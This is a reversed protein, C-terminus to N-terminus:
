QASKYTGNSSARLEEMRRGWGSVSYPSSTPSPTPPKRCIASWIPYVTPLNTFCEEYPACHTVRMNQTLAPHGGSYCFIGNAALGGLGGNICWCTINQNNPCATNGQSCSTGRRREGRRRSMWNPLGDDAPQWMPHRYDVIPHEPDDWQFNATSRRVLADEAVDIIDMGVDGGDGLDEEGEDITEGDEEGEREEDAREEAEVQDPSLGADAIKADDHYFEDVEKQIQAKESLPAPDKSPDLFEFTDYTQRDAAEMAEKLEAEAAKKNGRKQFWAGVRTFVNEHMKKFVMKALEMNGWMQVYEEVEHLLGPPTPTKQQINEVGQSDSCLENTANYFPAPTSPVCEYTCHKSVGVGKHDLHLDGGSGLCCFIDTKAYRANGSGAKGGPFLCWCLGVDPTVEPSRAMRQLSRAKRNERADELKDVIAKLKNTRGSPATLESVEMVQGSSWAWGMLVLAFVALM